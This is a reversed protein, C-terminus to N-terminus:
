AQDRIWSQYLSYVKSETDFSEHSGSPRPDYTGITRRRRRGTNTPGLLSPTQSRLPIGTLSLRQVIQPVGGSFSITWARSRRVSTSSRHQLHPKEDTFFSIPPQSGAELSIPLNKILPRSRIRTRIWIIIIIGLIIMSSGIVASIEAIEFM